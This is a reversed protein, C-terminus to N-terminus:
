FCTGNAEEEPERGVEFEMFRIPADAGGVVYTNYFEEQTMDPVSRPGANMPVGFRKTHIRNTPRLRIGPTKARRAVGQQTLWQEFALSTESFVAMNEVFAASEPPICLDAGGQMVKTIDVGMARATRSVQQRRKSDSGKNSVFQDLMSQGAENVHWNMTYALLTAHPNRRSLLPGWSDLVRDLGIYDGVNSTEIRDFGYSAAFHPEHMGSKLENALERADSQMVHIDIDFREVRRAMEALQDRVHVFLCGYIDAPDLGSRAGSQLVAPIPWGHLQDASDMTMWQGTPSFMTRNPESYDAVDAAFTSLIGSERNRTWSVRHSPKLAALHRDRYDVRRPNLMITRMDTLAVDMDYTSLLMRMSPNSKLPQKAHLKGGGRLDYTGDLTPSASATDASEYLREACLYMEAADYPRLCASYWFHLATEAADEISRGSRLLAYLILLNRSAVCPNCDNILIRCKGAYDEPLGNITSVVNRLDGSAAFCLNLDQRSASMGENLPLHLCDMAPVNGWLYQGHNGFAAQGSDGPGGMMWAPQRGDHVWGPKWSAKNLPCNCSKRHSPWHAVQCPKSCYKSCAKAPAGHDGDCTPSSCGGVPLLTTPSSLLKSRREALVKAASGDSFSQYGYLLDFLLSM